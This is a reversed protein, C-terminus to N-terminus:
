PPCWGRHPLHRLAVFFLVVGGLVLMVCQVADTWMVSSLGGLVTYSGVLLVIATLVVTTPLGTLKSFTISGGYLAPTLFLFVYGFLM